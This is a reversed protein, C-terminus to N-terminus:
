KTILINGRIMGMWCSYQIEGTQQPIFEIVNKGSHFTYEIDYDHIMIKYNCGNISDQSAYIEWQVPIGSQVSINPFTGSSLVSNVIQVNDVIQAKTYNTSSISREHSKWLVSSCAIMILSSVIMINKIVKNEFPVSLIVGVIGFVIIMILLWNSSFLGSIAGGQSLMSLGLVVVLLAGITMVQNTMKKTLLSIGAGFSLMLPVTGLSFMFMSLAGTIPSGSSLAVIWMSQLPGCPMFGNLMGVILPRKAKGKHKVLFQPLHFSFRRLWPFINLMNMGMMIMLVGAIIKVIGQLYYSVGVEVDSGILYGVMGLVFGILTYSLVRGLNYAFSPYWMKLHINKDQEKFVMCQSLSIGGCMAICHLSTLLGIVFLMGYGMKRDALQSPALLNLFGMTQLITYISIIIVFLCIMRVIDVKPKRLVEYDMYEIIGVIDEFSIKEQDYIIDAQGSKYDVKVKIMGETQMLKKEIKNQCNM